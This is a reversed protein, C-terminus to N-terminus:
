RSAIPSFCVAPVCAAAVSSVFSAYGDPQGQQGAAIGAVRLLKTYCVNYSTIRRIRQTLLTGPKERWLYRALAPVGTIANSTGLDIVRVEPHLRDMYPSEPDGVLLDVQYGLESFRNILHTRMKGIGGQALSAVLVALRNRM